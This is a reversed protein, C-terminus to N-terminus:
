TLVEVIRRVGALAGAPVVYNGIGLEAFRRTRQAIEHESGISVFPTIPSTPPTAIPATAPARRV